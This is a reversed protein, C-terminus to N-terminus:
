GSVRTVTGDTTCATDNSTPNKKKKQSSIKFTEFISLSQTGCDTIRFSMEEIIKKM